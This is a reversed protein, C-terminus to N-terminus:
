PMPGAKKERIADRRSRESGASPVPKAALYKPDRGARPHPSSYRAFFQLYINYKASRAVRWGWAVSSAAM